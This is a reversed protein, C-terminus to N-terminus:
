PHAPQTTAYARQCYVLPAGSDAHTAALVRALFISHTGVEMAEAIHCDLSVLADTSCPAGTALRTWEHQSFRDQMPVGGAGAFLQSVDIQEACLWNVSLVGNAKIVANAASRRNICVLVTPPTDSVSSVASCTVGATGHPGGTTVVTVATLAKTISDQYTGSYIPKVKIGPNDKEFDAALADVIRTIPGGVAVPYYFSIEVPAQALAIASLAAGVLGAICRGLVNGNM